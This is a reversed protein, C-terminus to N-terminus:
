SNTILKFKKNVPFINSIYTHSTISQKIRSLFLMTAAKKIIKAATTKQCDMANLALCDFLETNSTNILFDWPLVDAKDIIQQKKLAPARFM